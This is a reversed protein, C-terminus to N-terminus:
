MLWSIHYEHESMDHEDVAVAMIARRMMMILTYLECRPDIPFSWGRDGRQDTPPRTLCQVHMTM